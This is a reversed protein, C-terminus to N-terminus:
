AVEMVAFWRNENDQFAFSKKGFHERIPALTVGRNSLQQHESDVNTVYFCISPTALDLGDPNDKMLDKPVLELATAQGAFGVKIIRHGGVENSELIQASLKDVWFEACSDADGVYLVVYGVQM